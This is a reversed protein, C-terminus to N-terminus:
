ILNFNRLANSMNELHLYTPGEGIQCVRTDRWYRHVDMDDMYGHGGHLQIALDCVRSAMEPPQVKCASTLFVEPTGPLPYRGSADVIAATKYVLARSTEVDMAMRAITESVSQNDIVNRGLLNRQKVYELTKNFAGAAAGVCMAGIVVSGINIVTHLAEIGKHLEGFLNGAPVRVEELIVTGTSSGHWGLKKEMTGFSLGPMGKEGIFITPLPSGDVRCFVLYVDAEKANTIFTKTGNIVWDTGERRATTIHAPFNFVGSAETCAFAGISKGM